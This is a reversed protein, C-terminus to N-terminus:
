KKLQKLLSNTLNYQALDYIRAEYLDVSGLACNEYDNISTFDSEKIFEDLCEKSEKNIEKLEKILENMNKVIEM